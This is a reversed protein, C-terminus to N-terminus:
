ATTAVTGRFDVAAVVPCELDSLRLQRGPTREAPASTSWWEVM